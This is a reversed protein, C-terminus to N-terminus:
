NQPAQYPVEIPGDDLGEIRIVARKPPLPAALTAPSASRRSPAVPGRASKASAHLGAQFSAALARGTAEMQPQTLRLSVKTDSGEVALKLNRAIDRIASNPTKDKAALALLGTFQSLVLKATEDTAFHVTVDAALGSHLNVGAQLGEVQSAWPQNDALAAVSDSAMLASGDLIAWFDYASDMALARGMMSKAAPANDLSQSFQSRDLAAFVSAADGFLVTERDFLVVALDKAHKGQQRYVQFSNYAQPKAVAQALLRHVQAIDFRARIAVLFPADGSGGPSDAPATASAAPATILIRDVDNFFDLTPANPLANTKQLNERIFAGAPSQRIRAWDIGILATANPDAFRWLGAESQGHALVPTLLLALAATARLRLM